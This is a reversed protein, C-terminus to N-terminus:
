SCSARGIGVSKESSTQIVRSWAMAGDRFPRRAPKASASLLEVAPPYAGVGPSDGQMVQTSSM